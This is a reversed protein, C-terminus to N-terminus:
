RFWSGVEQMSKVPFLVVISFTRPLWVTPTRFLAKQRTQSHQNHSRLNVFYEFCGLVFGVAGFLKLWLSGEDSGCIEGPHKKLLTAAPIISSNRPNAPHSIIPHSHYSRTPFPLQLDTYPKSFIISAAGGKWYNRMVAITM